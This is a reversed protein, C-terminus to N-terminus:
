VGGYIHLTGAGKQFSKIIAKILQFIGDYRITFNREMHQDDPALVYCLVGKKMSSNKNKLGSFINSICLVM